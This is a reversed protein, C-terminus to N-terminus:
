FSFNSFHTGNDCIYSSNCYQITFTKVSAGALKREDVEVSASRRGAERAGIHRFRFLNRWMPLAVDPHWMPRTGCPTPWMPHTGCSYFGPHNEKAVGYTVVKSSDAHSKVFSQWRRMVAFHRRGSQSPRRLAMQPRLKQPRM